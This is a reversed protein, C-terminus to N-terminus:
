SKLRLANLVVILSSASMGIAALYPPIFGFAALPVVSLNYCVSWTINQSINRQCRQAKDRAQGILQLQSAMLVCDANAKALDSANAVAVSVEAAALIPVDNIGDGIMLVKEGAGQLQEVRALKQEPSMGQQYEGIGLQEACAAGAGSADGTLMEVKLGQREFIEILRKASPRIEDDLEFWALMQGAKALYIIQSQSAAPEPARTKAFQEVFAKSGIFFEAKAFDGAQRPALKASIGLGVHAILEDSLYKQQQQQVFAKAIPHESDAELTGALNILAQEDFEETLSHVRKLRLQGYTLTGTKDFIVRDIEPLSSLVHARTILFGKDRLSNLAVTLATPTALSLACPCSVVLVSLMIWFAKSPDIQWWVLAVLTTLSLVGIVFYASIKDALLAIKPKHLQARDLLQVIANLQSDQGISSVEISVPSDVNITGAAVSHGLQKEVPLYEGTFASEDVQTSGDVITGDAPFIDGPKIRLVDSIQVDALAITQQSQDELVKQCSTPLLNQLAQNSRGFNHRARLELYRGTLLFFTFMVVSDFYVEGTGAYTAWVSSIYAFGIAISVPLDMTAHRTKISRWAASFFPRAAYFVVPTTVVLSVWRLLQQYHSEMGEIAGAHLAFAFMGVQMMGFGAVGLRRIAQKHEAEQQLQQQDSQYPSAQYGIAYIQAVIQSLAVRESHFSITAKHLNLNVNVQDVGDISRLHQELLWICAACSIGSILLQAQLQGNELQTVFGTQFSNQDYIALDTQQQESQEALETRYQYYNDLGGAIITSAVAQCGPCCMQQTKGEIELEYQGLELVPLGCHFCSSQEM